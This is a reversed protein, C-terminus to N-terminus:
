MLNEGRRERTSPIGLQRRYKTVTTRAIDIGRSRLLAAIQLDSFPHGPPEAQVLRHIRTKLARSGFRGPTRGGPGSDFFFRMAFRGRPTCVHKDCIVRSVTSKHVGLDGAIDDLALAALHEVGREFFARQRVVIASMVRKTTPDLEEAVVFSVGTQIVIVDQAIRSM